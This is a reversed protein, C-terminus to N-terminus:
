FERSECKLLYDSYDTKDVMRNIRPIRPLNPPKAPSTIPLFNLSALQSYDNKVFICHKQM